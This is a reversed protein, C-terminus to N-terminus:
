TNRALGSPTGSLCRMSAPGGTMWGRKLGSGTRMPHPQLIVTQFVIFRESNGRRDRVGQMKAGLMSVFRRGVKGSLADYRRSPLVALDRWWAQWASDDAVGGDLHTGPNGHVWDRYVERLRLDEPTPVYWPVNSSAGEREVPEGTADADGRGRATAETSPQEPPRQVNQRGSAHEKTETNANSNRGAEGERAKVAAGKLRGQQRKGREGARAHTMGTEGTQAQRTM